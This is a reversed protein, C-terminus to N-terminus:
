ALEVEGLIKTAAMSIRGGSAIIAREAEPGGGAWSALYGFSYAASDIGLDHCVLYAVSEAELEALARGTEYAVGHLLAHALEHCLTKTMQAAAMRRDLRIRRLAHSCDGHLDGKLEWFEVSFGFEVARTLLMDLEPHRGGDDLDAVPSPLPPGDTQELDFVRVVRFFTVPSPLLEDTAEELHVPPHCPALIALGREGRRVQRGLGQWTRYGAVRTATPRQTLILIQNHFSYRRFRRCIRLWNMWRDSEALARVGETLQALIEERGLDIPRASSVEQSSTGTVGSRDAPRAPGPRVLREVRHQISGKLRM